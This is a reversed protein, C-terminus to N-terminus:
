KIIPPESALTPQLLNNPAADGETLGLHSQVEEALMGYIQDIEEFQEKLNEIIERNDSSHEGSTSRSRRLIEVYNHITALHHKMTHLLDFVQQPLVARHEFLLEEFAGEYNTLAKISAGIEKQNKTEINDLLDRAINRLRYVLSLSVKLTEYLKDFLFARRRMQELIVAKNQEKIQEFKLELARDFSRKLIYCIAAAIVSSTTISAIITQWNM